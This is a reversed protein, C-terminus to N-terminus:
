PSTSHQEANDRTSCNKCQTLSRMDHAASPKEIYGIAARCGRGPRPTEDCARLRQSRARVAGLEDDGSVNRVAEFHLDHLEVGHRRNIRGPPIELDASQRPPRQLQLERVDLAQGVDLLAAAQLADR